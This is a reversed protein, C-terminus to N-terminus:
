APKAARAADKARVFDTLVQKAQEPTHDLLAWDDGMASWLKGGVQASQVMNTQATPDSPYAREYAGLASSKFGSVIKDRTGADNPHRVGEVVDNSARRPRVTKTTPDIEHHLPDTGSPVRVSDHGPWAQHQENAVDESCVNVQTINGVEDFIAVTVQM